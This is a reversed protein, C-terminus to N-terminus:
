KNERKKYNVPLSLAEESSWGHKIRFEITQRKIGSEKSWECVNQSKGFAEILKSNSKNRAQQIASAWRCNQPCYNGKPDIRDISTGDPREGMDELFNLYSTKWRECVRIGNGGYRAYHPLNKNYCRRLMNHYSKYTKTNSKGDQSAYLCGCSRTDGYRLHAIEVISENGCDCKCLWFAHNNKIYSRCIAILRGFRM